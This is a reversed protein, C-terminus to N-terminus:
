QNFFVSERLRLMLMHFHDTARRPPANSDWDDNAASTVNVLSTAGIRKALQV